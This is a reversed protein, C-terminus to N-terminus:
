LLVERKGWHLREGAIIGGFHLHTPRGTSDGVRFQRSMNQNRIEACTVMRPAMPHGVLRSIETYGLALSGQKKKRKREAGTPRTTSGRETKKKEGRVTINKRVKWNKPTHNERITNQNKKVGTKSRQNTLRASNEAKPKRSDKAKTKKLQHRGKGKEPTSGSKGQHKMRPNLTGGGGKETKKGPFSPKRIKTQAKPNTGWSLPKNKKQKKKFQQLM